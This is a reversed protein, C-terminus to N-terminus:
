RGEKRMLQNVKLNVSRSVSTVDSAMDDEVVVASSGYKVKLLSLFIGPMPMPHSIRIPRHLTDYGFQFECRRELQQSPGSPPSFTASSIHAFASLTRYRLGEDYSTGFVQVWGVTHIDDDPYPEYLRSPEKSLRVVLCQNM